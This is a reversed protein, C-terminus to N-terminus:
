AGGWTPLTAATVALLVVLLGALAVLVWTAVRYQPLLLVGERDLIDRVPVHRQHLAGLPEETLLPPHYLRVPPPWGHAEDLPVTERTVTVLVGGVRLNGM